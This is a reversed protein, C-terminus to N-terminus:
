ELLRMRAVLHQVSAQSLVKAKLVDQPHEGAAAAYV